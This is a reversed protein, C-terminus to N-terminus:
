FTKNRHASFAGLGKKMPKKSNNNATARKFLCSGFFAGLGRKAPIELGWVEGTPNPHGKAM